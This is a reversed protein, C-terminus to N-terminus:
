SRPPPPPMPYPARARWVLTRILYIIGVFLFIPIFVIGFPIEVVNQGVQGSSYPRVSGLVAVCNQGVHAEQGLSIGGLISVANQEIPGNSRITGFIAVANEHVAGEIRISCFICVANQVQEGEAVSISHFIAVRDNDAQARPVAAAVILLAFIFPLIRRM